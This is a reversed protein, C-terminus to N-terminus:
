VKENIKTGKKLKSQTFLLRRMKGTKLAQLVCLVVANKM